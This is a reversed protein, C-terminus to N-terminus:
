SNFPWQWKQGLGDLFGQILNLKGSDTGAHLFDALEM